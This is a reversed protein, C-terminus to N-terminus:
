GQDIGDTSITSYTINDIYYWVKGQRIEPDRIVQFTGTAQNSVLPM